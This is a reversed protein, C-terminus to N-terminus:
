SGVLHIPRYRHMPPLAAVECTRFLSRIAGFEFRDGRGDLAAGFGCSELGASCYGGNFRVGRLFFWVVTGCM